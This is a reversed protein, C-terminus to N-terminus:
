QVTNFAPFMSALEEDSLQDSGQGQGAASSRPADGSPKGKGPQEGDKPKVMFPFDKAVTKLQPELGEVKGDKVTIASRDLKEMVTGVDYWSADKFSEVANRIAANELDSKITANEQIAADREEQIKVAKSNEKELAEIYSDKEELEQTLENNTTRRKANERSLRRLKRAIEGKSLGDISFDDEEDDDDDDESAKRRTQKKPRRDAPKPPAVVRDQDEDEGDGGSALLLDYYLHRM